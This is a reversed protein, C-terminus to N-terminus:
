ASRRQRALNFRHEHELLWRKRELGGGFGTLSGDSGIVRHCPVVVCVPNSGNALGVARSAGEKGIAAALRGYTTTTGAPIRRLEAWVHRQFETGGTHVELRDLAELDGAFYADIADVVNRPARRDDMEFTRDANQRRLLRHMREEYGEFDLARLRGVEDTLALFDGVPSAIHDLHLKEIPNM